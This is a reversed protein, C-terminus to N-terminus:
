CIQRQTLSNLRRPTCSASVTFTERVRVQGRVPDAAALVARLDAQDLRWMAVSAESEVLQAQWVGLYVAEGARLEFAPRQPGEILGNAFYSIRRENVEAFVSDLAYTGPPMEVLTFEGPAERVRLTSGANTRAEFSTDEDFEGFEGTAPDLRRWLLSFAPEASRAAEAVGIIVYGTQAGGVVFDPEDSSACQALALASLVVFLVRM